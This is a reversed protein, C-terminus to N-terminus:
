TFALLWPLCSLEEQSTFCERLRLSLMFRLSVELRLIGSKQIWRILNATSQDKPSEAPM